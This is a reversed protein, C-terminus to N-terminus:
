THCSPETLISSGGELDIFRTPRDFVFELEQRDMLNFLVVEHKRDRLHHIADRIIEPDEFFDSFVLLLARSKVTEAVQHLQTVLQNTEV